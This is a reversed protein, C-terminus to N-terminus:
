DNSIAGTNKFKDFKRLTESGKDNKIEQPAEVKLDLDDIVVVEDVEIVPQVKKAM